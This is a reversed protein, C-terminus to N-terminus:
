SGSISRKEPTVRGGSTPQCFIRQNGNSVRIEEIHSRLNNKHGNLMFGLEKGVAATLEVEKEIEACNAENSIGSSDVTHEAGVQNQCSSQKNRQKPVWLSDKMKMSPFKGKHKRNKTRMSVTPSAPIDFHMTHSPSPNQNLDIPKKYNGVQEIIQRLYFPDPSSSVAENNVPNSMPSMTPEFGTSDCVKENDNFLGDLGLNSFLGLDNSPKLKPPPPPTMYPDHDQPGASDQNKTTGGNESSPNENDRPKSVDDNGGECTSKELIDNALASAVKRVETNKGLNGNKSNSGGAEMSHSSSQDYEETNEPENRDGSKIPSIPCGAIIDETILIEHPLGHWAITLKSNIRAVNNTIIGVTSVSLDNDDDNAASPLVVKGILNGIQDFIKPGWFQLPVGRISVKALRQFLLHRGDWVHLVQFWNEWIEKSFELFNSAIYQTKFVRLGDEDLLQEIRKLDYPNKLEAVLSKNRWRKSSESEEVSINVTKEPVTAHKIGTIVEAYSRGDTAHNTGGNTNPTKGDDVGLRNRNNQVSNAPPYKYKNKAGVKIFKAPRVFLKIQDIRVTGLDVALGMVDRVNEFRVFGFTNGKKDRKRPVYADTMSGFGYFTDWLLYSSCDDPLNGIFYTTEKVPKSNYNKHDNILRRGKYKAVWWPEEQREEFRPANAYRQGKEM